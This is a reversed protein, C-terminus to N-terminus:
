SFMSAVARSYRIRVRMASGPCRMTTVAPDREVHGAGGVHQPDLFKLSRKRPVPVENPIGTMPQPQSTHVGIVRPVSAGAVGRQQLAVVARSADEDIRRRLQASWSTAAPVDADVGDPERVVVGVVSVADVVQADEGCPEPLTGANASGTV